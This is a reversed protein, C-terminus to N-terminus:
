CTRRGVEELAGRTGEEAGPLEIGPVQIEGRNEVREDDQESLKPEFWEARKEYIYFLRDKVWALMLSGIDKSHGGAGLTRNVIMFTVGMSKAIDVFAKWDDEEENWNISTIEDSSLRIDGPFVKIQVTKLYSRIEDQLDNLNTM